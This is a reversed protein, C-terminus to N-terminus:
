GSYRLGQPRKAFVQAIAFQLSFDGVEEAGRSFPYRAHLSSATAVWNSRSRSLVDIAISFGRGEIVRSYSARSHNPRPFTLRINAMICETSHGISSFIQDPKLLTGTVSRMAPRM